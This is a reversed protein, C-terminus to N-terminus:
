ARSADGRAGRYIQKFLSTMKFKNATSAQILQGGADITPKVAAYNTDLHEHFDAEDQIVLSATESRGAHETSPLATVTSMMTPFSIETGSDTGVPQQLAPHLQTHIFKVKDVLDGAEHQGKSLMLVVAGKHYLATWLAYAALLWSVGVQRAKLIVVLRETRLTHALSELHEWKEFPIVSLGPPPELVKVYDLFDVFSAESVARMLEQTTAAQVM